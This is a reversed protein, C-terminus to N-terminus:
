PRVRAAVGRLARVLGAAMHLPRTGWWRLFVPWSVPRGDRGLVERRPWWLRPLRPRRRSLDDTREGALLAALGQRTRYGRHVVVAVFHRLDTTASGGGRIVQHLPEGGALARTIKVLGQMEDEPVLWSVWTAARGVLEDVATVQAAVDQLDALLRFFYAGSDPHQVVAHVVLHALLVDLRPVHAAGPMADVRECLAHGLLQDASAATTGPAVRLGAALRHV